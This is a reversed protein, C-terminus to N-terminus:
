TTTTACRARDRRGLGGGAGPLPADHGPDPGAMFLEQVKEEFLRIELMRRYWDVHTAVDPSM